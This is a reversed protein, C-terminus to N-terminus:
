DIPMASLQHKDILARLVDRLRGQEAPTLIGFFAADNEDALDALLPVQERGATSLSLSLRRKDDPSGVREILGKELLRDALKSIAGKTMSMKQALASPAMGDCDYLSRLMAWEAVTVGQSTVRRAFEQSVANSVTRLLYGTHSALESVVTM